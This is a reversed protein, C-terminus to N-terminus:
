LEDFEAKAQKLHDETALRVEDFYKIAAEAFIQALAAGHTDSLLFELEERLCSYNPANKLKDISRACSNLMHEDARIQMQVAQATAYLENTM